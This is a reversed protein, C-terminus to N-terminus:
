VTEEAITVTLGSMKAMHRIIAKIDEINDTGFSAMGSYDNSTVALNISPTEHVGYRNSSVELIEKSTFRNRGQITLTEDTIQM